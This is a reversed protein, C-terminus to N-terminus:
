ELVNKDKSNSYKNKIKNMIDEKRMKLKPMIPALIEAIDDYMTFYPKRGNLLKKTGDKGLFLDLAEMEREYFEKLLKIKQEENVSLLKKGKVDEKKDIIAFQMKIYQLNKHHMEECKNLRLPLEIDELDFELHEGTPNGEADMIGIRLINDKKLQIFNNEKQVVDAM